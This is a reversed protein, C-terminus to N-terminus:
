RLTQTAASSKLNRSHSLMKKKSYTTIFNEVTVDGAVFQDYLAEAQEDAEHSAKALKAILVEPKLKKM